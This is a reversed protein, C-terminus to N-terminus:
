PSQPEAVKWVFHFHLHGVVVYAVDVLFIPQNLLCIKASAASSGSFVGVYIGRQVFTILM